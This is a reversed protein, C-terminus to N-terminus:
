RISAVVAALEHVSEEIRHDPLNGYALALCDDYARLRDFGEGPAHGVALDARHARAVM